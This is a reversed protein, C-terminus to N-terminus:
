VWNPKDKPAVHTELCWCGGEKVTVNQVSITFTGKWPHLISSIEIKLGRKM